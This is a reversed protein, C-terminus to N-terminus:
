GPIPNCDKTQWFGNTKLLRKRKTNRTRIEELVAIFFQDLSDNSITRLEVRLRKLTEPKM